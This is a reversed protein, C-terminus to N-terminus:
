IGENIVDILNSSFKGEKSRFAGQFKNEVLPDTKAQPTHCQSCNFRGQYLHELTENTRLNVFHSQPIAIAGMDKAVEPMHCGTCMNNDKTIPLLGETSHPIMPPANDFAREIRTSAGPDAKSFEYSPVSLEENFLTSNRYGLDNESITKDVKVEKTEPSKACGVSFGLILASIASIIFKRKM